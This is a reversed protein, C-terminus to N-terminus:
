IEKFDEPEKSEVSEKQSKRSEVSEESEGSENSDESAKSEAVYRPQRFYNNIGILGQSISHIDYEQFGFQLEM